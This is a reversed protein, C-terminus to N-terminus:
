HVDDQDIGCSKLVRLAHNGAAFATAFTRLNREVVDEIPSEGVGPIM